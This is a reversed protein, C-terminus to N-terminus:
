PYMIPKAKNVEEQTKTNQCSMFLIGWNINLWEFAIRTSHCKIGLPEITALISKQWAM